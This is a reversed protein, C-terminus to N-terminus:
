SKRPNNEAPQSGSEQYWKHVYKSPSAHCSYNAPIDIQSTFLIQDINMQFLVFPFMSKIM